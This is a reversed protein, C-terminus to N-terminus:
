RTSSGDVYPVRTRVVVLAELTLAGITGVLLVVGFVTRDYFDAGRLAVLVLILLIMKLLWSGLVVAGLATTSMRASLLGIVVTVGFFALPVLAGLVGAWLGPVGGLGLGILAAAPIFVLAGLAGVRLIRRMPELVAPSAAM